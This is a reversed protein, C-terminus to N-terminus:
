MRQNLYKGTELHELDPLVTKYLNLIEVKSWRRLSRLRKLEDMFYELLAQDVDIQDNIM